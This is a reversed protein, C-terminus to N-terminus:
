SKRNLLNVSAELEKLNWTRDVESDSRSQKKASKRAVVGDPSVFGEKCYNVSLVVVIMIVVVIISSNRQFFSSEKKESTQAENTNVIIPGDSSM